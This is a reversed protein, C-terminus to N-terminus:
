AAVVSAGAELPIYFVTHIVEDGSAGATRNSQLTLSGGAKGVMRSALGKGNTDATETALATNILTDGADGNLMFIAGIAASNIDSAACLDRNSTKVRLKYDTVTTHLANTVEIKWLTILVSGSVTFLDVGTATNVNETKSVSAGLASDAGRFRFADLM